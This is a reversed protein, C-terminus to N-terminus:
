DASSTLNFDAEWNATYSDNQDVLNFTITITMTEGGEITLDQTSTTLNTNAGSGIKYQSTTTIHGSSLSAGPLTEASVDIANTASLNQITIVVEIETHTSDFTLNIGNWETPGTYDEDITVDKGTITGPNGTVTYAVKAYISDTTFSISGGMNITASNAAFIGVIMLALVLCFAAIASVLKAKLSM